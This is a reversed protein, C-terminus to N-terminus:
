EYFYKWHYDVVDETSKLWFDWNHGGESEIFLVKYGLELLLQNLKQSVPLFRDDTGCHLYIPPLDINNEKYKKIRLPEDLAEYREPYSEIDGLYRSMRGFLFGDKDSFDLVVTSLCSIATFKEPAELMYNLAGQGGMSYGTIARKTTDVRYWEDISPM